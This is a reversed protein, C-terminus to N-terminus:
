TVRIRWKNPAFGWIQYKFVQNTSIVDTYKFFTCQLEGEVYFPKYKDTLTAGWLPHFFGFLFLIGLVGNLNSDTKKISFTEVRTLRLGAVSGLGMYILFVHLIYRVPTDAAFANAMSGLCRCDTSFGFLYLGARYGAFVLTLGLVFALKLKQNTGFILYFGLIYEILMAMAVLDRDKLFSFVPDPKLSPATPGFLKLTATLFLLFAVSQLYAKILRTQIRGKQIDTMAM